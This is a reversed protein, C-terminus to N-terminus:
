LSYDAKFELFIACVYREECEGNKFGEHRLYILLFVWEM